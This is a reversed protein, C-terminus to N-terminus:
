WLILMYPATDGIGQNWMTCFFCASSLLKRKKERERERKRKKAPINNQCIYNCPPIIAHPCFTFQSLLITSLDESKENYIDIIFICTFWVQRELKKYHLLNVWTRMFPCIRYAVGLPKPKCSTLSLLLIIIPDLLTIPLRDHYLIQPRWLFCFTV